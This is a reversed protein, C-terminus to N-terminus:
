IDNGITNLTNKDCSGPRSTKVKTTPIKKGSPAKGAKLRGMSRPAKGFYKKGM